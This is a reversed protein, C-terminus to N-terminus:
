AQLEGGFGVPRKGGREPVIAMAKYLKGMGGGGREVLREVAGMVRKKGDEDEKLEQCITDARARIGMTELWAGQEVPGHVEVGPSAALAAEALATFDVDASLDVQGASIFPSVSKHSRIGRFTSIPVTGSPGYDFILAAGSAVQKQPQQSSIGGIRRAFEAAYSHSEPSIEITSGSRPLLAKYRTSLSPLLTSTPTSAKAVTLEFDPREGSKPQSKAIANSQSASLTTTVLLERWQSERSAQSQKSLPIPGTPTELINSPGQPKPPVSQFAFIPLADFFEHAVIFPTKSSDATGTLRREVKCLQLRGKPVFRIDECWTIPINAHKSRCQFSGELDEVPANGCLLQRQSERLAPSAEVLYVSDISTTLQKFNGITQEFYAKTVQIRAQPNRGYGYCIM